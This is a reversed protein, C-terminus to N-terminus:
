AGLSPPLGEGDGDGARGVWSEEFGFGMVAGGMTFGLGMGAGFGM